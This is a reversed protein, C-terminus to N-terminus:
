LSAITEQILALAEQYREMEILYAIRDLTNKM